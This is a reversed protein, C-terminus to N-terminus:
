RRKNDFEEENQWLSLSVERLGRKELEEDYNYDKPPWEETSFWGNGIVLKEIPPDDDSDHDSGDVCYSIKFFLIFVYM